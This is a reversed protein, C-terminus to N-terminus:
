AWPGAVEEEDARLAARLDDDGLEANTRVAMAHVREVLADLEGAPPTEGIQELRARVVEPGSYKGLPFRRRNGVTAPDLPEYVTPHRLVGRVHAELKHAFADAGVLPRAPPIPTRALEAVFRSLATLGTADIGVDVGHLRELAVVVEALAANGAREGLGNVTVDIISAGAEYAALANALALGLDNHTHVQVPVDFREVVRRVLRAIDAPGSVGATDAISIREAGARLARAYAELLFGERARTTDTPAFRVLAAGREVAYAIGAEIRELAESEGVRQVHELRLASAPYMLDIVDAGSEVCRDVQERWDGTFIQGVVEVTLGLAKLGAVAAADERSRGPYGAQVQTLGIGRLREGVVLKQELSFNAQAAQEGERLTCDNVIPPASAM